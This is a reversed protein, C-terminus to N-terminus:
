VNAIQPIPASPICPIAYLSGLYRASLDNEAAALSWLEVRDEQFGMIVM